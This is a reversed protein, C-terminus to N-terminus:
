FIGPLIFLEAMGQAYWRVLYDNPHLPNALCDKAKKRKYIEDSLGTMDFYIIGEGCLSQLVAPYGSFNSEYYSKKEDEQRIYGPDFKMNGILLFEVNHNHAKCKEIITRVHAKFQDPTFRWFDNMGFDVIVLDPDLSNIYEDAFGAAWAVNGGPLGANFLKIGEHHYTRALKRVFLEVYPPTYPPLRRYGSADMGRTISMGSAVIRLPLGSKLREMTHPMNQGQFVPRIGTWKDRHLYTVAIWQSQIDYWALNEASFATDAVSSIASGEIKTILNGHLTYDVGEHYTASLDYSRVSIIESPNFL